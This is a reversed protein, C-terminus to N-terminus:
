KALLWTKTMLFGVISVIVHGVSGETASELAIIEDDGAVIIYEGDHVLSRVCLGHEEGNIFCDEITEETTVAKTADSESYSESDKIESAFELVDLCKLTGEYLICYCITYSDKSCCMYCVNDDTDCIRKKEIMKKKEFDLSFETLGSGGIVLSKHPTMAATICQGDYCEIIDLVQEGSDIDYIALGSGHNAEDWPVGIYQGALFLIDAHCEMLEIEKVIEGTDPNWVTASSSAFESSAVLNLESSYDFRNINGTPVKIVRVCNDSFFTM